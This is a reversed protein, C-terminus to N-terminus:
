RRPASPGSGASSDSCRRSGGARASGFCASPHRDIRYVLTLFNGGHQWHIEDIGIARIGALDVHDRGWTVAMAVARFAQDWSTRFMREIERWSLRNAGTALFWIYATTLQHKGDAWPVQEVTVGCRACVVPRKEYLLFVRLGWLPVFEFRRPALRDYVGGV